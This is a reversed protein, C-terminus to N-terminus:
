KSKKKLSANSFSRMEDGKVAFWFGIMVFTMTNFDQIADQVINSTGESAWIAVGIAVINFLIYFTFGTLTLIPRVGGRLFNLIDITKSNNPNEMMMEVKELLSFHAQKTSEIEQSLKSTEAEKQVLSIDLNKQALEKQLDIEALRVKTQNELELKKLGSKKVADIGGSIANKLIGVIFGGAGGTAINAVTELFAM